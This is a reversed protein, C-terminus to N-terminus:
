TPFELNPNSGALSYKEFKSLNLKIHDFNSNPYITLIESKAQELNSYITYNEMGISNSAVYFDYLSRVVNKPNSNLINKKVSNIYRNYMLNFLPMSQINDFFLQYQDKLPISCKIMNRSMFNGMIMVNHWFQVKQMKLYEDDDFSFCNRVIKFEEYNENNPDDVMERDFDEDKFMFKVINANEVVKRPIRIKQFRVKHKSVYTPSNITTNPLVILNHVRPPYLGLEFNKCLTSLWTESNEGPLGFILESSFKREETHTKKVIEILRDTSINHRDIANLASESFSQLSIKISKNSNPFYKHLIQYMEEIRETGNKAIGSLILNNVQNKNECIYRLIDVDREFIGFNADAIVINSIANSDMIKEIEKRVKEEKFKTIKSNITSGWDCFACSYPCGRNTELIASLSPRTQRKFISDFIGDQYPTPFEDTASLQYEKRKTINYSNETYTGEFSHGLLYNTLNKEGPGVFFRDVYPRESTYSKAEDVNEPVNPGGYLVIGNQKNKKYLKAISDNVDQNWVYCSFGLIDVNELTKSFNPDNLCDKRYEPELFEYNEKIFENKNCYSILVGAPFPVWMGSLIDSSITILLIKKKNTSM